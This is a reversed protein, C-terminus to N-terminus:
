RRSQSLTEREVAALKDTHVLRGQLKIQPHRDEIEEQKINPNCAPWWLTAKPSRLESIQAQLALM